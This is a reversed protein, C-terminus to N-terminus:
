LLDSAATDAAIAAVASAPIEEFSAVSSSSGNAFGNSYVNFDAGNRNRGSASNNHNNRNHNALAAEAPRRDDLTVASAYHSGGHYSLQLAPTVGEPWNLVERIQENNCM